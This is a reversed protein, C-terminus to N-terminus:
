TKNEGPFKREDTEMHHPGRWDESMINPQLKVMVDALVNVHVRENTM